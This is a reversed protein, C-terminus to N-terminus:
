RELYQKWTQDKKRVPRAQASVARFERFRAVLAEAFSVAHGIYASLFAHHVFDVTYHATSWGHKREVTEQHIVRVWPNLSLHPATPTGTAVVMTADLVCVALFIMPSNSVGTSFARREQELASVLPMVVQNFPVDGSLKVVGKAKPEAKTFATALTPGPTIFPLESACFFTAASTDQWAKEGVRLQCGGFGIIAPFDAPWRTVGPPFFVYPLGSRKCEVLLHLRPRFTDTEPALERFAFIDLARHEQTNRDTYGWEEIVRFGFDDHLSRAVVTQLPYGSAIVGALLESEAIGAPLQNMAPNDPHADM